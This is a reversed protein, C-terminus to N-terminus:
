VVIPINLVYLEGGQYRKILDPGSEEIVWPFTLGDLLLRDCTVRAVRPLIFGGNLITIKEAKTMAWGLSYKM